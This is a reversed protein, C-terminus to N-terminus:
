RLGKVRYSSRHRRRLGLHSPAFLISAAQWLRAVAITATRTGTAGAGVYEYYMLYRVIGAVSGGSNNTDYFTMSAPPTYTDTHTSAFLCVLLREPGGSVVSPAVHNTQAVGNGDAMGSAEVGSTNMVRAMLALVRAAAGTFGYAYSAPESAAVKTYVGLAPGNAQTNDVLETWGPLSIAGDGRWAAHSLLHEGDNVPSPVGIDVAQAGAGSVVAEAFNPALSPLTM